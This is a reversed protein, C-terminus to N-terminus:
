KQLCNLKDKFQTLIVAVLGAAVGVVAVAIGTITGVSEEIVGSCPNSSFAIIESDDKVTKSQHLRSELM